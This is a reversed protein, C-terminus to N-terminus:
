ILKLYKFDTCGYWKNLMHALPRHTEVFDNENLNAFKVWRVDAIDDDAKPEGSEYKLVFMLTKIKSQESRYRWDDLTDSVSDTTLCKRKIATLM